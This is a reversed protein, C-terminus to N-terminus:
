EAAEVARREVRITFSISPKKRYRDTDIGDAQMLKEDLSGKRETITQRAIWEDGGLSDSGGMMESILGRLEDEREKWFKIKERVDALEDVPHRNSPMATVNM